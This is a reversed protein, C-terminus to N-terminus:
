RSMKIAEISNQKSLKRVAFMTIGFTIAFILIYSLIISGFPISYSVPYMARFPINIGYSIVVGAITGWFLAKSSCLLSEFILMKKLERPKMGISQLIAFERARIFINTFFTSVVSTFSILFLLIAFSNLFLIVIVIAINMVKSFEDTRYVRTSFGNEMYEANENKPFFEDLVTNAYEIFDDEDSPTSLWSYGRVIHEPLILRVPRTNPYFLEKPISEKTIMADINIETENGNTEFLTIKKLDSDYPSIQAEVGNNNYTYCNLLITSGLPVGTTECLIKYNQNDIVIIEVGFEYNAKPTKSIVKEMDDTVYQNTLITHYKQNDFGFGFVDIGNYERLKESVENGTKSSIPAIYTRYRNGTTEDIKYSRASTYDSIITQKYKIRMYEMLDDLQARLGGLSVFLTVGVTLTVVTTNFKRKNRNINKSAFEWEFGLMKGIITNSYKKNKSIKVTNAGRISDVASTKSAKQAPKYASILVTFFCILIALMIMQWSFVLEFSFLVKNIMIHALANLENLFLNVVDIAIVTLLLGLIIGIPIGVISLFVSEYFIISYIQKKTTGVCKLIGFEAIRENASVKFINSIVVMTITIILFIIFSAPIFLIRIYTQGYDGYDDGLFGILTANGSSIFSCVTVILATSLAIAILSWITRYRNIKLQSLALKATIKM